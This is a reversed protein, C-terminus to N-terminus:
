SRPSVQQQTLTRFQEEFYNGAIRKGDHDLIVVASVSPSDASVVM